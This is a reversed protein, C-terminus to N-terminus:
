MPHSFLFTQENLNQTKRGGLEDYIDIRLDVQILLQYWRCFVVLYWEIRQRKLVIEESEGSLNDLDRSSHVIIMKQRITEISWCCFFGPFIQTLWQPHRYVHEKRIWMSVKEFFVQVNRHHNWCVHDIFYDEVLLGFFFAFRDCWSEFRSDGAEYVPAKRM